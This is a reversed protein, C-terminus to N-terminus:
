QREQISLGEITGITSKLDKILAEILDPWVPEADNQYFSIRFVQPDLPNLALVKLDERWMQVLIHQGDPTSEGVRMAFANSDAFKRLQSVFENRDQAAVTAHMSRIPLEPPVKAGVVDMRAMGVGSLVCSLAVAILFNRGMSATLIGSSPARNQSENKCGDHSVHVTGPVSYELKRTPHGQPGAELWAQPMRGAMTWIANKAGGAASLQPRTATWSTGPACRESSKPRKASSVSSVGFSIRATPLVANM